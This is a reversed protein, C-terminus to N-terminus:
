TMKLSSMMKRASIAQNPTYIYLIIINDLFRYLNINQNYKIKQYPFHNQQKRARQFPRCIIDVLAGINYRKEHYTSLCKM